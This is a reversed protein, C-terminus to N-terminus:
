GFKRLIMELGDKFKRWLTTRHLEERILKKQVLRRSIRKWGMGYCRCRVIEYEAPLEKLFPLWKSTVDQWLKMEEKTLNRRSNECDEILDELSRYTDPIVIMKGILSGGCNPKDSPLMKDLKFAERIANEIDKITSYEFMKNERNASAGGLLNM